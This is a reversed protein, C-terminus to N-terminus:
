GWKRLQNLVAKFDKPLDAEFYMEAGTTPHKFKLSFAHLTCRSMLPKEEETRNKRYAKMKVKSLYFADTKGYVPDIALPQGLSKLHIRIQHMRGTKIEVDLLTYNKFEEKVSYLSISEKGSKAIIMRGPINPHNAIPKNIEGTKQLFRGEALALYHKEVKRKEFQQCLIKHAEATKAYCLIGSTERDLRHVTFVEGYQNRLQTLTNAKHSSFRDPISLVGSPKNVIIIDDDAFIIDTKQKTRKM